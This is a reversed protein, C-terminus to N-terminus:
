MKISLNLPQSETLSKSSMIVSTQGPWTTVPTVTAAAATPQPAVPGPEQMIYNQIVEAQKMQEATLKPSEALSRALMSHTASLSPKFNNCEEGPIPRRFKKHPKYAAEMLSNTDYLPPAQLVRKLVPMDEPFAAPEETVDVCSRPSSCVSTESFKDLKETGSEIGSDSPPSEIKRVYKANPEYLSANSSRRKLCAKEPCSEDSPPSEVKVDYNPTNRHPCQQYSESASYPSMEDSSPAASAPVSSEVSSSSSSEQSAWNDQETMKFALLKESHLTNLTRLDPVKTYLQDLIAPANEGHNETVLRQLAGRLRRHMREVFEVNRLGPRDPAIVVVSCFLGVEADSLGLNNLREAFDFMSDVLFRANSASLRASDRSLVQGNLCVLRGTQADFMAALRLLLVEFVGAKLLTVQDAQALLAFGPLRKAFQVVGRIAPSFRASFDQLAEQAGTLPAAHPNLPCAERM